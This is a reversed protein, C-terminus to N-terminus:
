TTTVNKIDNVSSKAACHPPISVHGKEMRENIKADFFDLTQNIYGKPDDCEERVTGDLEAM